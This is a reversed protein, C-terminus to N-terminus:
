GRYARVYIEERKRFHRHKIKLQIVCYYAFVKGRKTEYDKTKIHLIDDGNKDRDQNIILM